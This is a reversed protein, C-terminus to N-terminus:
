EEKLTKLEELLWDRKVKAECAESMAASCAAPRAASWAASEPEYSEIAQVLLSIVGDVATAVQDYKARDIQTKQRELWFVQFRDRLSDPISAGVPIAELFQLPWEKADAEPLAEFIHEELYALWVPLGLKEPYAEHVGEGQELTCGLACGKGDAWYEFSQLLSEKSRHRKIRDVYFQKTSKQGLFAKM